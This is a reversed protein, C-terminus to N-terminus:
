HGCVHSVGAARGPGFGRVQRRAASWQSSVCVRAPWVQHRRPLLHAARNAVNSARVGDLNVFPGGMCYVVSSSRKAAATSRRARSIRSESVLGSPVSKVASSALLIASSCISINAFSM